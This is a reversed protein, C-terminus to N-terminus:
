LKMEWVESVRDPLFSPAPEQRILKFGAKEYIHRAAHLVSNTWLTIKKYGAERAFRICEDVLRTGLGLGRAKPHLILLRLKAVQKSKKVLFVSGAIEGDIEAIWCREYKSDFHDIFHECIGAVLAEFREDWGYEQAYLLGHLQIIAGMDGPRHQRLAYSRSPKKGNGILMGQITQMAEIMRIQDADSLRSLLGAIEQHSRTDLVRTASRGASTLTILNQRKDSASPKRTILGKKQFGALLRSLYGTDLGLQSALESAAPQERHVIEYLVRAETLSYPSDHMGEKLVGIQQTYFRNFSRVASVRDNM